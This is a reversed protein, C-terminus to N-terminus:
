ELKRGVDHLDTMPSFPWRAWLAPGVLRSCLFGSAFLGDLCGLADGGLNARGYLESELSAASGISVGETLCM